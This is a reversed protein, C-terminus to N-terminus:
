GPHPMEAMTLREFDAVALLTLGGPGCGAGAPARVVVANPRVAVVSLVASRAVLGAVDLQCAPGAADWVNALQEAPLCPAMRALGALPVEDGPVALPAPYMAASHVITALGLAMMALCGGAMAAENM